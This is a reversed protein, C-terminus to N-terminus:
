RPGDLCRMAAILAKGALPAAVRGGSEGHEVIVVVAIRPNEVPAYGVFIAHDKLHYPREAIKGQQREEKTIRCVQTSGTKGAIGFAGAQARVGTGSKVVAAMGARVFNFASTSYPLRDCKIQTEEACSLEINKILHPVVRQGSALRTTMVALQLPTATLQGQGISLNITQGVYQKQLTAGHPPLQGKKEEPLEVNTKAGFGFDKAANIIPSAGLKAAVNYFFVDCSKELARVVDMSGHGGIRWSHCHFRSRNVEYYGSCFFRTSGSITGNNLAAIAVIPKFASGPAYIGSVARNILPLDKDNMLEHWEKATVAKSFLNPDFTPVSVSALIDGTKIDLVVIAGCRVDQMISRIEKQLEIDITLFVDKGKTSRKEDILRVMRRAANVEIQKIGIEGQLTADFYREIGMKGISADLVKLNANNSIDEQSPRTVYGVCHCCDCGYPYVRVIQPIVVIGPAQSSLLEVAAIERWTLQDKIPIVLTPGVSHIQKNVYTSLPVNPDLSLIKCLHEWNSANYQNLDIAARYSFSSTALANGRRDFITGRPAASYTTYIRNKEALLKYKDNNMVQLFFLRSALLLFIAIIASTSGM